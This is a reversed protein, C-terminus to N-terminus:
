QSHLRNSDDVHYFSSSREGAFKINESARKGESKGKEEM